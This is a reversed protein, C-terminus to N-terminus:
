TVCNSASILIASANVFIYRSFPVWLNGALAVVQVFNDFTPNKVYFRPPYLFIEDIPKVSQILAYVIPLGMFVCVVLLFMFVGFNGARSRSLLVRKKSRRNFKMRRWFSMNEM